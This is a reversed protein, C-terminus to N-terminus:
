SALVSELEDVAAVLGAIHKATLVSASERNLVTSLSLLGHTNGCACRMASDTILGCECLYADTLRITTPSSM